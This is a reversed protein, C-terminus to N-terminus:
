EKKWLINKAGQQFDIPQPYTFTDPGWNQEGTEIDTRASGMSDENYQKTTLISM